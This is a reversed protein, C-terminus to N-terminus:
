QKLSRCMQASSHKMYSHAFKNRFSRALMLNLTVEIKLRSILIGNLDSSLNEGKSLWSKITQGLAFPATLTIYHYSILSNLIIYYIFLIKCKDSPIKRSAM